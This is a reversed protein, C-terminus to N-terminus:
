IPSGSAHVGDGPTPFLPAYTKWFGRFSRLGRVMTVGFFLLALVAAAVVGAGAGAGLATTVAAGLLGVLSANVVVIFMMTSGAFQFRGRRTEFFFYTRDMGALDDHGSAMLYRSLGPDLELYAARLRNMALVYMLDESGVNWVRIQTLLGILAIVSLIAIAYLPFGESFRTVQGVLALSVLGASVLTLLISIRVLVESQATSRSALLSWHETALLQARLADPSGSAPVPSPPPAKAM